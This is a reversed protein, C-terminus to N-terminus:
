RGPGCVKQATPWTLQLAGTDISGDILKWVDSLMFKLVDVM